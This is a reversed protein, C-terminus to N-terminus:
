STSEDVRRRLEGRESRRSLTPKMRVCIWANIDALIERPGKMPRWETLDFLKRCDSVYLPVDGPRTEALSGVEIRRGTLEACLTTTERLSLSCDRGGGVNATVGDWRMPDGLQDDLLSVLDDVHLLDRVQKGRGGFGIYSLPREFHHALLWFTFVGEDVKGMQSPGVVVGCRNVVAHLGYATRHEEILFEASL